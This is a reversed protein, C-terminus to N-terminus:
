TYDEKSIYPGHNRDREKREEIVMRLEELRQKEEPTIEPM